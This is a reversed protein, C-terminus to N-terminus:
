IGVMEDIIAKLTKGSQSQIKRLRKLAGASITLTADAADDEVDGFIAEYEDGDLHKEAWRQAQEFSIPIISEGGTWTCYEIQQRYPSDPGGEGYIFFNGSKTRYLYEEFYKYDTSGCEACWTGLLKATDTNYKKGNIVKHM